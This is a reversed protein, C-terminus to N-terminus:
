DKEFVVGNIQHGYSTGIYPPQRQPALDVDKQWRPHLMCTETKMEIHAVTKYFEEDKTVLEIM